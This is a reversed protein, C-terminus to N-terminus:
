FCCPFFSLYYIIYANYCVTKLFETQNNEIASAYSTKGLLEAKSPVILGMYDRAVDEYQKEVTHMDKPLQMPLLGYPEFNGCMIDLYAEDKVGFGLLMGDTYPEIEAPIFPRAPQVLVIVPKNGMLKKTEIVQVMDDRNYSKDSKGLYSRNTFNEKADGGAISVARSDTATYDEYQLSIPSTRKYM